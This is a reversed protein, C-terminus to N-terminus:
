QMTFMCAGCAYILQTNTHTGQYVILSNKPLDARTICGGDAGLLFLIKPPNKRIVEVGAKYGLDLAAVQSAVRNVYFIFISKICYFLIINRKLFIHTYSLHLFFIIFIAKWFNIWSLNYRQLINLVKWGQEVNGSSRANQAITSVVSLIAAGDERQLSSSGVVVVPRKAALLAQFCTFPFILGFWLTGFNRRFSLQWM